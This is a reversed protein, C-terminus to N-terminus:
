DGNIIIKDKKSSIHWWTKGPSLMAKEGKENYLVTGKPDDNYKWRIKEYKGQSILFGEGEGTLRINVRSDERTEIDTLQIVINSATLVEQSERDTSVEENMSKYYVGDKYSYSTNYNKNPVLTVELAKPLTDKVWYDKQFSLTGQPTTIYNKEKVLEQIKESSTYLNHPAKRGSDRYFYKGYKFENLSNGSGNSIAELAEASGGCHAFPLDYTLALDLFYPRASRIPGIVEATKSYFLAIFRPIGGEAMTEFIIDAANLGSQPRALKSNEIIAMFPVLDEKNSIEEGTYPSYYKEELLTASTNSTSNEVDQSSPPPSVGSNKSNFIFSCGSLSISFAILLLLAAMKFNRMARIKRIGIM